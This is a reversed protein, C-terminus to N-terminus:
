IVKPEPIPTIFKGGRQRYRSQQKLIENSFNWALLLVYDPMTEILKSPPYIPLHVGPMFLGQKYTSRDAVYELLDKGIEVYNLFTSGKAAAGYAAIRKGNRKLEILLNRVSAKLIQVRQSFNQYFELQNVGWTKEEALLHRVAPKQRSEAKLGRIKSVFLRLTGGHIPIRELDQIVLSHRALLSTLSQLSFYSLHEHYITDFECKDILEKVYPVEFIALGDEKLLLYIGRVFSNLYTIHGLVNHVHILDAQKGSKKLKQAVEEGFFEPLTPVGREKQAFTAINVAPDIGLVPIGHRTYYQLLYGDNSAPEIVLSHSNLRRVRIMREVLDEAHRLMTDSFSSFYLYKRFLKEQPLTETIQVLSCAECFVLDLPFVAETQKLEGLTLFANALPMKGLSLITELGPSGCSRCSPLNEKSPVKSPTLQKLTHLM